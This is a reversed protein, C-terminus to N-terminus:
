PSEEGELVAVPAPESVELSPIGKGNVKKPHVSSRSSRRRDAPGYTKECYV